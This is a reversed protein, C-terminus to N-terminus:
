ETYLKKQKVNLTLLTGNIVIPYRYNKIQQKYTNYCYIKSWLFDTEHDFGRAACFFFKENNAHHHRSLKHGDDDNSQLVFEIIEMCVNRIIMMKLFQSSFQVRPMRKDDKFKTM